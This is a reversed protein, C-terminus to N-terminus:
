LIKKILLFAIEHGQLISLIYEFFVEQYVKNNEIEYNNIKNM